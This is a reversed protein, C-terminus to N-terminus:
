LNLTTTGLWSKFAFVGSDPNTIWSDLEVPMLLSASADAEEM